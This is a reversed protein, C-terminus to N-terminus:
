FQYSFSVGLKNVQGFDDESLYGFTNMSAQASFKYSVGAGYWYSFYSDSGVSAGGFAMLSWDSHGLPRVGFMGGYGGHSASRILVFEDSSDTDSTAQKGHNYSYGAMPFLLWGGPQFDFYTLPVYTGISYNNRYSGYDYDTKSFNFNVIGLDFLWSGGIRWEGEDNVRGSLMRADDLGISGSVTATGNYGFGAKTVIRTPDEHHKEEAYVVSAILLCAILVLLLNKM